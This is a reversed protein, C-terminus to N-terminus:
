ESIEFGERVFDSIQEAFKQAAASEKAADQMAKVRRKSAQDENVIFFSNYERTGDKKERYLSVSM